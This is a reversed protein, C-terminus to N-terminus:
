VEQIIYTIKMTKEATKTVSTELNNITALYNVWIFWGSTSYFLLPENRMPVYGYSYSVSSTALYFRRAELPLVENSSMNAVAAYGSSYNGDEYYVRGNIALKPSYNLSSLGSFTFETVNASNALELKYLTYPSANQKLLIYGQTVFAGSVAVTVGTTNTIEYQTIEWTDMQIKTVLMTKESALTSSSATWIYLAEEDPDFTYGYSSSSSAITIATELEDLEIEEILPKTSYVDDVVSVSKLYAKRKIINIHSTDAVKFYWACDNERDLLFLSETTGITITGHVATSSAGTYTASDYRLTNSGLSRILGYSLSSVADKSGYSSYGGLLHTLCVSAITGNGQSTAFDYVYKVYKEDDNVESETANFSGRLTNTTSNIADYAACAVCGAEAPPFYEDENEELATDFCLLGGLFTKYYPQYTNFFLAPDNILGLPKFIDALANTVMNHNEFTETEGTNVDTLEIRTTGILKNMRM